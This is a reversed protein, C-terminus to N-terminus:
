NQLPNVVRGMFLPINTNEDKILILFPMNFSITQHNSWRTDKSLIDGGHDTGNESLDLVAKHLAKSLKLPQQEETVGSLDAEDSFVKTIGLNGLLSKLDYTGSIVFRPMRLNIVRSHLFKLYKALLKESLKKELWELKGQKPLLLLTAIRGQFHLLVVWCRVVHDWYVKCRGLRHMMPVRITVTQNVHFDEIVSRYARFDDRCEGEYIMYNVLAFATDRDLKEVVAVIKGQTEVKIQDNIEKKAEETDRFNVSFAKSHYLRKVNDLFKHAHKLRKDLFLMTSTTIQIQDGPQNLIELLHALGKHIEAMPPKKFKYDIGWLIQTHTDGKTGLSLMLFALAISVPSFIINNKSQYALEHYLKFTFNDLRPAISFFRPPKYIAPKSRHLSGPVQSCLGALLLFGWTISSVMAEASPPFESIGRPPERTPRERAAGYPAKGQRSIPRDCDSPGMPGPLAKGVGVREPAWGAPTSVM